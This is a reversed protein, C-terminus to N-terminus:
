EYQGEMIEKQQRCTTKGCYQKVLCRYPTIKNLSNIDSM